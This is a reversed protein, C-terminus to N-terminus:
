DDPARRGDRVELDLRMAVRPGLADDGHAREWRRIAALGDSPDDVVVFGLRAYFPGNWSVDRFTTLTVADCGAGRAWDCAAAVLATGRGRRGASPHVSLQWIHAAEDVVGVSAFGLPPDDCVLVVEARVLHDDDPPAFPGMGIELFLTESAAEILRLRDFEDPRARRTPRRPSSM